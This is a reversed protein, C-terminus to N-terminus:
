LEGDAIRQEVRCLAEDILSRFLPDVVNEAYQKLPAVARRDGFLGLRFVIIPHVNSLVANNLRALLFDTPNQRAAFTHVEIDQDADVERTRVDTVYALARGIGQDLLCLQFRVMKQMFFSDFTWEAESLFSRYSPDERLLDVIRPSDELFFLCLLRDLHSTGRDRALRMLEQERFGAGFRSRLFYPLLSDFARVSHRDDKLGFAGHDSFESVLHQTLFFEFV